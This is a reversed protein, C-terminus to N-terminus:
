GYRRLSLQQRRKWNARRSPRNKNDHNGKAGLGRHQRGAATLGRLERHKMTANCIWNIRPDRRITKHSPDALIVEFFKYTADQGVWYSNLVRLNGCKRGVREEAVSRLNRQFKLQNIGHHVPKGYVIGKSNPRKRGGRRVKIRYIVYGQKAKYGLRRAKDPRSPRTARHITPLQRYEWTRIRLIFRLVDSQKKKWLEELYKYAGM